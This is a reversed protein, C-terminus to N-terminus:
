IRIGLLTRRKSCDVEGKGKKIKTDLRLKLIKRRVKEEDSTEYIAYYDLDTSKYKGDFVSERYFRWFFHLFKYQIRYVNGRKVLQYETM